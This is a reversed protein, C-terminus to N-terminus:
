KRKMINTEVQNRRKGRDELFFDFHKKDRQEQWKRDYFDSANQFKAVKIRLGSFGNKKNRM